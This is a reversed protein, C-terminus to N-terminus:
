IKRSYYPETVNFSPGASLGVDPNARFDIYAADATFGNSGICVIRFMEADYYWTYPNDGPTIVLTTEGTSSTEIKFRGSDEIKM